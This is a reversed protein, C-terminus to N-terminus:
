ETTPEGAMQSSAADGCALGVLDLLSSCKKGSALYSIGRDIHRHLASAFAESNGEINNRICWASLLTWLLDGRPGAFVRWSMEVNSDFVIKGEHLRSNEALSHLLAWRCLTNWNKIGTKRKLQILKNKADQSIRVRDPAQTM